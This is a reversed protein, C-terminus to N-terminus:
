AAPEVSIVQFTHSGGEHGHISYEGPAFTDAGFRYGAEDDDTESPDYDFVWRAHVAYRRTVDIGNRSWLTVTPGGKETILRFGDWAVGVLLSRM